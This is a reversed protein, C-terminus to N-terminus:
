PMSTISAQKRMTRPWGPEKRYQLARAYYPPVSGKSGESRTLPHKVFFRLHGLLTQPTLVRASRALM